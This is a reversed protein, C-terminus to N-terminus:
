HCGCSDEGCSKTTKKSKFFYKKVLFGVALAVTIFVLIQQFLEM